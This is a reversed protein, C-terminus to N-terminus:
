ILSESPTKNLSKLYFTDEENRINIKGIADIYQELTLDELYELESYRKDSSEVEDITKAEDVWFYKNCNNCFSVVVRDPLMPTERKGDTWLRVGFTNGSLITRQKLKNDCFPCQIIKNPGPLM